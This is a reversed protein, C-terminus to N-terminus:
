IQDNKFSLQQLDKNLDKNSSLGKKTEIEQQNKDRNNVFEM